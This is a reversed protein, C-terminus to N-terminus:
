LNAVHRELRSKTHAAKNKHITGRTALRDIYRKAENLLPEAAKKDESEMVRRILTRMRMTQYRNAVRRRENQRVRKM